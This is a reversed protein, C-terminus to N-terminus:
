KKDLSYITLIKFKSIRTLEHKNRMFIYCLTWCVYTMNKAYRLMTLVTKHNRFSKIEIYGWKEYVCLGAVEDVSSSLAFM